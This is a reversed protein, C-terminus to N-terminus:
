AAALLRDLAAEEHTSRFKLNKSTAGAITRM